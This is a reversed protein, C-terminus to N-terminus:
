TTNQCEIGMDLYRRHGFLEEWRSV